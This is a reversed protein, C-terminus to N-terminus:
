LAPNGARFIEIFPRPTAEPTAAPAVPATEAVPAPTIAQEAVSAQPATIPRSQPLPIEKLAGVHRHPRRLVPHHPALCARGQAVEKAGILGALSQLTEAPHSAVFARVQDCTFASAANSITVMAVFAAGALFHLMM